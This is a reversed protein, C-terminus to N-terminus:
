ASFLRLAIGIVLVSTFGLTCQLLRISGELHLTAMELDTKTALQDTLESGIADAMAEAQDPPVGAGELKRAYRLTDIAATAM